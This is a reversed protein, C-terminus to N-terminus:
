WQRGDGDGSSVWIYVCLVRSQEALVWHVGFGLFL